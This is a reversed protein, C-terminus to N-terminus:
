VFNSNNKHYALGCADCYEVFEFLQKSFKFMNVIRLEMKNETETTTWKFESFFIEKKNKNECSKKCCKLLAILIRRIKIFSRKRQKAKRSIQLKENSHRM